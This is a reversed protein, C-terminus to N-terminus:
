YGFLVYICFLGIAFYLLDHVIDTKSYNKKYLFNDLIAVDRNEM